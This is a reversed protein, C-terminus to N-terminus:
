HKATGVLCKVYLSAHFQIGCKKTYLGQSFRQFFIRSYCDWAM